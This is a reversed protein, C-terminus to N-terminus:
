FSARRDHDRVAQGRDLAGVANQHHVLTLESLGAIMLLKQRQASNIPLQILQLVLILLPLLALTSRAKLRCHGSELPCTKAGSCSVDAQCGVNGGSLGSWVARGSSM